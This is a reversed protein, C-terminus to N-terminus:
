SSRRFDSLSQTNSTFRHYLLALTVFFVTHSFAYYVMGAISLHKSGAIGEGIWPLVILANALWAFLAYLMGEIWAPGSLFPKVAFAYFIAMLLGILIHFGLKFSASDAPPLGWSAWLSSLGIRSVGEGVLQKFLALLGGHTIQLPILEAAHLQAVNIM